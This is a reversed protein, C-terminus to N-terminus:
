LLAEIEQRYNSVRQRPDLFELDMKTARLSNIAFGGKYEEEYDNEMCVFERLEKEPIDTTKKNQKWNM